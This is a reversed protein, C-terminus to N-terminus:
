DRVNDGMRTSSCIRLVQRDSGYGLTNGTACGGCNHERGGSCEYLVIVDHNIAISVQCVFRSGSQSIDDFM